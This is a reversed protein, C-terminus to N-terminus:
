QRGRGNVCNLLQDKLNTCDRLLGVGASSGGVVCSACDANGIRRLSRDRRRTIWRCRWCWTRPVVSGSRGTWCSNGFTLLFMIITKWTWLLVLNMRPRLNTLCSRFRNQPIHTSYKRAVHLDSVFSPSSLTWKMMPLPFGVFELLKDAGVSSHYSWYSNQHWVSIWQFYYMKRYTDALFPVMLLHLRHRQQQRQHSHPFNCWKSLVIQLPFKRETLEIEM